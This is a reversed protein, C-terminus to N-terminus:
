KAGSRVTRSFPDCLSDDLVKADAPVIDGLGVAIIDGPALM